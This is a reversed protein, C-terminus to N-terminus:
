EEKEAKGEEAPAAQPAPVFAAGMMGMSGSIGGMGAAPPEPGAYVGAALAEVEAEARRRAFFEPGAYVLATQERPPEAGDGDQAAEEAPEPGAYVPATEELPEPGAYITNYKEEDEPPLPADEEFTKGIEEPPTLRDEFFEPGAYVDLVEEEPRQGNRRAFYEPGAYVAAAPDKKQKNFPYKKRKGFLSFPM